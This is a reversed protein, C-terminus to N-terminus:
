TLKIQLLGPQRSWRLLRATAQSVCQAARDSIVDRYDKLLVDAEAVNDRM